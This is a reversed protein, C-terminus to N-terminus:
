ENSPTTATDPLDRRTITGNIGRITPPLEGPEVVRLGGEGLAYTTYAVSDARFFFDMITVTQRPPAASGILQRAGQGLAGAHLLQLAGKRGPYYAHHHGSIYGHVRQRELIGRLSDPEQLVEGPRNRGEAVAYLPLHGLVLRYRAGRAPEGALQEGVWGMMPLEGVTGAFSADWVLVFVGGQRFSYYFPFHTSDVFEVGTGRGPARWHRAAFDRDRRHAAGASGDHNGITFGFPIKAARLPAAVAADFSSWMALVTSDSLSPRQGAILDGAALVLDPRWADRIMRVAQHVEPEYETSGYSGNLDSIVVIRLDGREPSCSPPVAGALVTALVLAGLGRLWRRAWGPDTNGALKVDDERERNADRLATLVDM